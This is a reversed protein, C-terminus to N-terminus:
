LGGHTVTSIGEDGMEIESDIFGSSPRRGSKKNKSILLEETRVFFRGV